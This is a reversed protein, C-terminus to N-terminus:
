SHGPSASSASSVTFPLFEEVFPGIGRFFCRGKADEFRDAGPVACRLADGALAFGIRYAFANWCKDGMGYEIGASVLPVSTFAVVSFAKHRADFAKEFVAFPSDPDVEQYEPVNRCLLAAQDYNRLILVRNPAPSDRLAELRARLEAEGADKGLWEVPSGPVAAERPPTEGCPDYVLAHIGSCALLSRLVSAFLGRVIAEDTGAVLLHDRPANSKLDVVFPKGDLRARRGLWLGIGSNASKGSPLGHKRFEDPGPVALNGFQDVVLCDGGGCRRGLSEFLGRVSELAGGEGAFRPHVFPENKGSAGGFENLIAQPVRLTEADRNGSGLIEGGAGPLAVRVRLQKFMVEAQRVRLLDTHQTALVVHIGCSRALSLLNLLMKAGEGASDPDDFVRTFEDVVLLIRPMRGGTRTRWEAIDVVGDKKFLEDRRLREDDLRKLLECAASPAHTSLIARAHPLWPRRSSGDIYRNAEVGDKMDLLVIRLDDPSYAQCLSCVLVHLFNSKGGGSTGGVLVHQLEGVGLRLKVPAGREDWGVVTELGPGSDASWPARDNFLDMFGKAASGKSRRLAGACGAALEAMQEHIPLREDRHQLGLRAPDFGLADPSAPVPIGGWRRLRDLVREDLGNAAPITWLVGVGRGCGEAVLRELADFHRDDWGEFSYVAVVKYPLPALGSRANCEEWTEAGGSLLGQSALNGCYEVLGRLSSLEEERTTALHFADVGAARFENFRLGHRGLAEHDLLHAEFFGVPCAQMLRLLFAGMEEADAFALPRELPFAFGLPFAGGSSSELTESRVWEPFALGENWSGQPPALADLERARDAALRWSVTKEPHPPSAHRVGSGKARATALRSRAAAERKSLDAVKGRLASMRSKLADLKTKWERAWGFSDPEEARVRELAGGLADAVAEWDDLEGVKKGAARGHREAEAEPAAGGPPPSMPSRGDLAAEDPAGASERLARLLDGFAAVPGGGPPPSPPPSLPSDSPPGSVPSTGGPPSPPVAPPPSAEPFAWGRPPVGPAPSPHREGSGPIPGPREPSKAPPPGPPPWGLLRDLEELEREVDDGGWEKWGEMRRRIDGLDRDVQSCLDGFADLSEGGRLLGQHCDEAMGGAFNERFRKAAVRYDDMWSEDDAM